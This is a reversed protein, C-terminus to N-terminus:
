EVARETCIYMVVVCANFIEAVVAFALSFIVVSLADITIQGHYFFTLHMSMRPRRWAPTRGPCRVGREITTNSPSSMKRGSIQMM